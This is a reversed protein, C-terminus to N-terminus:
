PIRSGSRSTRPRRRAGRSQRRVGGAGYSRPQRRLRRVRRAMLLWALLVLLLVGLAGYLAPPVAPGAQVTTADWRHEPQAATFLVTWVTGDVGFTEYRADQDQLVTVRVDVETVEEPCRFRLEAGEDLFEPSADVEGPCDEGDQRVRIHQLLYADLEPSAALAAVEEETPLADDPGVLFAEMTGPPFYGIAEGVYAADDPPATWEVTVVDGDASLRAHPPMLGGGPHALAPVVSAFLGIVVAIGIVGGGGWALRAANSLPPAVRGPVGRGGVRAARRSATVGRV